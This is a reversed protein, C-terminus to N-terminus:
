VGRGPPLAPTAGKEGVQQDLGIKGGAEAGAYFAAHDHAIARVKDPVFAKRQKVWNAIKEKTAKQQSVIAPLQVGTVLDPVAGVMVANAREVMRQYLRFACGHLFSNRVSVRSSKVAQDAIRNVAQQLYEFMLRAVAISHRQGIFGHEDYQQGKISVPTYFYECNCLVAVGKAVIRCWNAADTLMGGDALISDDSVHTKRLAELTLGHTTELNYKVLLGQARELARAAEHENSSGALALLKRITDILKSHEDM